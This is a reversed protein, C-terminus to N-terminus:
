EYSDARLVYNLPLNNNINAINRNKIIIMRRIDPLPDRWDFDTLTKHYTFDDYAKQWNKINKLEKKANLYQRYKFIYRVGVEYNKMKEVTNGLCLDRIMGPFDMGSKISM